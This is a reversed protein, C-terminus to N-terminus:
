PYRAADDPGIGVRELLEMVIERREKKVMDPHHIALGEAVIDRIQMRPDLSAAPNQFIIQMRSRYQKMNARTIENGNYYVAGSDPELLRLILRGLTTKGCGSEGVLGFTGGRPLAFSVGDVARLPSRKGGREKISFTKVLHNVKLLPMSDM